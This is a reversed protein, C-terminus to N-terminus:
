EYAAVCAATRLGVGVGVGAQVPAKTSTPGRGHYNAYEIRSDLCIPISFAGVQGEMEIQSAADLWSLELQAIEVALFVNLAFDADTVVENTTRGKQTQTGVSRENASTNITIQIVVDDRVQVNM